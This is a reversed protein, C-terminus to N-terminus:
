KPSWQKQSALLVLILRGRSAGVAAQAQRALRAMGAQTPLRQAGERVEIVACRFIRQAPHMRGHSAGSAVDLHDERFDSVCTRVAMGVDMATLQSGLTLGAVRDAAPLYGDLIDLLM